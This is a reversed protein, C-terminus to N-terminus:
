LSRKRMRVDANLWSETVSVIDFNEALVFSQFEALKNRTGTVTKLSRANLLCLSLDKGNNITIGGTTVKTKTAGINTKRADTRLTSTAGINTKRADTRLTSTEVTRL